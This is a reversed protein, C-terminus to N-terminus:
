TNVGFFEKIYELNTIEFLENGRVLGNCVSTPLFYVSLDLCAIIHHLYRHHLFIEYDLPKPNRNEICFEGINFLIKDHMIEACHKNMVIFRDGVGGYPPTTHANWETDMILDFSGNHILYTTDNLQDILKSISGIENRALLLLDSEENSSNIFNFISSKILFLM